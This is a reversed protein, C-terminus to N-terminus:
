VAGQRFVKEGVLEWFLSMWLGTMVTCKKQLRTSGVYPKLFSIESKGRDNGSSIYPNRWASHLKSLPKNFCHLTEISEPGCSINAECRQVHYRCRLLQLILWIVSISTGVWDLYLHLLVSFSVLHTESDRRQGDKSVFAREFLAPMIAEQREASQVTRMPECLFELVTSQSIVKMLRPIKHMHCLADFSRSELYSFM